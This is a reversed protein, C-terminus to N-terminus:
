GSFHEDFPSGGTVGIKLSFEAPDNYGFWLRLTSGFDIRVIKAIKFFGSGGERRVTDTTEDALVLQLRHQLKQNEEIVNVPDTVTSSLEIDMSNKTQRRGIKAFVEGESKGCHKLMNDLAIFFIEVVGKLTSGPLTMPTESTRSLQLTHQPYCRRVMEQAVDVAFDFQYDSVDVESNRTFWEAIDDIESQVDTRARLLATRLRQSSPAEHVSGIENLCTDIVSSFEYKFESKLISRLNSLSSDTKKWLFEFLVDLANGSSKSADIARGIDLVEQNTVTFNFFGEHNKDETRIQVWKDRLKAILDDGSKSLTRLAEDMREIDNSNVRDDAFSKTWYENSDYDGSKGKQSTLHWKELVSRLQGSLTGHRIGVSLYVDLGHENSSVFRERVLHVLQLLASYRENRPLVLVVGGHELDRALRIVVDSYPTIDKPLTMFRTYLESFDKDVSNRIGEVDVQIRSKEIAQVGKRILQKQTIQAIEDAYVSRRAEDLEILWQLIAVREDLVESPTEYAVHSDIIEPKCMAYLFFAIVEPSVGPLRSRMASPRDVGMSMLFQECRIPIDSEAATSYYENFLGFCTTTYIDCGVLSGESLLENHLYIVEGLQIRASLQPRTCLAEAAVRAAETVDGKELNFTLLSTTISLADILDIKEASHTLANLERIAGDLDGSQKIASAQYRIARVRPILIEEDATLSPHGNPKFALFKYTLCRAVLRDSARAGFLALHLRPSAAPGNLLGLDFTGERYKRGTATTEHCALAFIEIAWRSYGFMHVSKILQDFARYTRPGKILLEILHQRILSFGRTADTSGGFRAACRCYLETFSTKECYPLADIRNRVSEYHGKTYDDMISLYRRISESKEGLFNKGLSKARNLKMLLAELRDDRIRECLARTAQEFHPTLKQHTSSAAALQAARVFTLYRDILPSGREYVLVAVLNTIESGLYFGTHFNFYSVSSYSDQGEATFSKSVAAHYRAPSVAREAKLSFFYAFTRLASAVDERKRIESAFAKQADVGSVLELLSFRNSLSWLSFGFRLEIRKLLSLAADFEGSLVLGDFEEELPIFENLIDSFARVEAAALYIDERPSESYYINSWDCLDAYDEAHIKGFVPNNVPLTRRLDRAASCMAEFPLSSM